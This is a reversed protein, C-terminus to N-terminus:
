ELDKMHKIFINSICFLVSILQGSENQTWNEGKYVKYM